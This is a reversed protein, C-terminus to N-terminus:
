LAWMVPRIPRIKKWNHVGFFRVEFFSLHVNPIVVMWIMGFWWWGQTTHFIQNNKPSQSGSVLVSCHPCRFGEFFVKLFRCSQSRSDSQTKFTQVLFWESFVFARISHCYLFYFIYDHATDRTRDRDRDPAPNAPLRAYGSNLSPEGIKGFWSM